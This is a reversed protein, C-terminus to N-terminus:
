SQGVGQMAVGTRAPNQKSNPDNFMVGSKKQDIDASNPQVMSENEPKAVPTTDKNVNPIEAMTNFNTREAWYDTGYDITLEEGLKIYRNTTFYMQKNKPNYGYTLNPTQSHRYLSGYGLILGWQNKAKDLEFIIDKLRDITKALDSVLIVPCVEVIEGKAFQTKGLMTYDGGPRKSYEVRGLNFTEKRPQFAGGYDAVHKPKKAALEEDETFPNYFDEKIASNKFDELKPIKNEDM